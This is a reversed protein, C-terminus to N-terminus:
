PSGDPQNHGGVKFNLAACQFTWTRTGREAAFSVEPAAEIFCGDAELVTTGNLDRLMMSGTKPTAADEDAKVIDSLTKNTPSSASLTITFSAGKNNNKVRTANGHADFERTWRPNDQTTSFFEASVRGDLFDVSAGDKIAWSGVVQIPDYQRLAM